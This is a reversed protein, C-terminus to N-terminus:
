KAGKEVEVGSLDLDAAVLVLSLEVRTLDDAAAEVKFGFVHNTINLDNLMVYEARGDESM